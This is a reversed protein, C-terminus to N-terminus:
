NNNKSELLNKLEKQIETKGHDLNNIDDAVFYSDLDAILHFLIKNLNVGNKNDPLHEMLSLLATFTLSSHWDLGDMKKVYEDIFDDPQYKKIEETMSLWGKLEPEQKIIEDPVTNGLKSIVKLNENSPLLLGQEWNNINKVSIDKGVKNAFEQKSLGLENRITLIKSGINRHKVDDLGQLYPVSVDLFDAIKKWTDLKPERGGNEYLSVSQQSVKLYDALSKQSIGKSERAIKINNTM